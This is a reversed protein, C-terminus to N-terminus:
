GSSAVEMLGYGAADAGRVHYVYGIGASDWSSYGMAACNMLIVEHTSGSDDDIVETAAQAHNVSFNYFLCNKFLFYRDGAFGEAIHLAPNAATDSYSEITCDNFTCYKETLAAAGSCYITSGATRITESASGIRCRDFTAGWPKGNADSYLWLSSTAATDVQTAAAHGVFQCNAAYFNEGAHLKLATYNTASAGANRLYMNHFQCNDGDM